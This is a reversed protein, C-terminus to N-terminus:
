INDSTCESVLGLANFLQKERFPKILCVEAGANLVKQIINKEDFGTIAIVRIHQTLPDKKIRKCMEIGDMGPMVLDLLVITPKFSHVQMGADFGDNAISTFVQPNAITHSLFEAFERNDDVVLLRQTTQPNLEQIGKEQAFQLIDSKKFRRHGGPTTTFDLRGELAWARVTVPAVNLLKGAQTPTLYSDSKEVRHKKKM